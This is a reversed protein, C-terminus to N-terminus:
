PKELLINAGMGEVRRQAHLGSLPNLPSPTVRSLAQSQVAGLVVCHVAHGGAGSAGSPM